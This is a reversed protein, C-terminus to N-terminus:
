RCLKALRDWTSLLGQFLDTNPAERAPDRPLVVIDFDHLRSRRLRFSERVLRKFRNRGVARPIRRKSVALGLRPGAHHRGDPEQRRYLVTFM